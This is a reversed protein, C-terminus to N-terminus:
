YRACSPWRYVGKTTLLQPAGIRDGFFQISLLGPSPTHPSYILRAGAPCISFRYISQPGSDPRLRPRNRTLNTVAHNNKLDISFLDRKLGNDDHLFSFLVYHGDPSWTLNTVGTLVSFGPFDELAIKDTLNALFRGSADICYIDCVIKAGIRGVRYYAIRGDPSYAPWYDGWSRTGDPAREDSKTLPVPEGGISVKWIRPRATAHSFVITRGDPSVDLANCHHPMRTLQTSRGGAASITFVQRKGTAGAKQIYAIRRTGPILKPSRVEYPYPTVIAAKEAGTESDILYITGRNCACILSTSVDEARLILAATVLAIVLLLARLNRM